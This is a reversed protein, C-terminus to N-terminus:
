RVFLRAIGSALRALPKAAFPEMTKCLEEYAAFAASFGQGIDDPGLANPNVLTKMVANVIADLKSGVESVGFVQALLAITGAVKPTSMSTGSIASVPGLVPDVRGPGLAKPWAAETNYGEEGLDPRQPWDKYKPDRATLRSGKGRSSFYAMKGDRDTAAVALIRPAGSAPDRYVMIAPSGVTNKRSGANGAAFVMIHGEEALKLVLQSDPSEPDGEDSGWSNSIVINGDNGAMTLAKLIDDLNAGGDVFTKYHTMSKLWPAYWRVMSTVWTGHGNDDVDPGSTANATKVGKLLPHTTDAGTDIVGIKPQPAGSIGLGRLLSKTLRAFFGMEIEPAGWHQRALEHIKDATSLALTEQMTVPGRGATGAEPSTPEGPIPKVIERRANDYVKYGRTELEAKFAAAKDEPVVLTAANIRRYTAVPAANYANLVSMSLGAAEIDSVMKARAIGYSQAISFGPLPQVRSLHADDALPRSAGTFRVIYTVPAPLDDAKGPPLAEEDQAGHRGMLRGILAGLAALGPLQAAAQQVGALAPGSFLLHGTIANILGVVADSFLTMFSLFLLTHGISATKSMPEGPRGFLRFAAESGFLRAAIARAVHGGDLLAGGFFSTPLLNFVGLLANFWIAVALAPLVAAAGLATAAAYAAGFAAALAFNTVPGALATRAMGDVPDKYHSVNVPVPNAGGIFLPVGLTYMSVLIMGVPAIVTWFPDIHTLLDKFRFSLRGENRATPDGQIDSMWAHAMEHLILSPVVAALYVGAMALPSLTAFAATVIAAGGAMLVPMKAFLKTIGPRGTQKFLVDDRVDSRRQNPVDLVLATHFNQVNDSGGRGESGDWVDDPGGRNDERRPNGLEDLDDTNDPSGGERTSPREDPMSTKRASFLVDNGSGGRGGWEDSVDDPGGRNDDRRPNGLEDLDDTDDPSGSGRTDREVPMKKAFGGKLLGSKATFLVDNDSGGRGESGDWVDDPGGRNDDRRPNGLEDLDDTSDPSGSDRTGPEVPMKRSSGKFFAKLLGMAKSLKVTTFLVDNDSGGRGGW